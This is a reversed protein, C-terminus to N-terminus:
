AKNGVKVDSVKYTKGDACSEAAKVLDDSKLKDLDFNVTATKTEFDVKANQVGDMEALKEEITKACGVACTMGEVHFTATEPNTVAAIEKKNQVQNLNEEKVETPKSDTNKCGVFLVSALALGFIGKSIGM